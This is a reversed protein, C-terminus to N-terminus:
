HKEEIDENSVRGSEQYSLQIMSSAFPSPPRASSFSLLDSLQLVRYIRAVIAGIGKLLNDLEQVMFAKAM